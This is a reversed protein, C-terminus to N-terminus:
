PSPAEGCVARHRRPELSLGVWRPFGLDHLRQVHIVRRAVSYGPFRKTTPDWERLVLVDGAQYGRDDLRLEFTREGTVLPRFFQPWVKLEHVTPPPPSPAEGPSPCWGPCRCMISRGEEDKTSNWCYDTSHAGLFHGCFECREEPKM